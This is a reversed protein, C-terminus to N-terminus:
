GTAIVRYRAKVLQYVGYAALGLAVAGLLYPAYPQGDLTRLADALGGAESPDHTLAARMLLYGVIGVQSWVVLASVIREAPAAGILLGLSGTNALGIGAAALVLALVWLPVTTAVGALSIGAVALVLAGSVLPPPHRGAAATATAAVVLSAGVYLAGVQAQSLREAFHLPLVGELM